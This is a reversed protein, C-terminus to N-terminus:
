VIFYRASYPNHQITTKKKSCSSMWMRFQLKIRLRYLTIFLIVYALSHMECLTCNSCTCNLILDHLNIWISCMLSIFHEEIVHAAKTNIVNTFTMYAQNQKQKKLWNRDNEYLDKGYRPCLLCSINIYIIVHARGRNRVFM